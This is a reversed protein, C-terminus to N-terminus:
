PTPEQLIDPQPQEQSALDERPNQETNSVAGMAATSTMVIDRPFFLDITWDLAVRVKRSLKPMKLLYVTRWLWWAAFGSLQIGYVKAVGTRCGLAALAGKSRINCPRPRAGSVVAALNRALHAGQRVAHQATAPYAARDHTVESRFVIKGHEPDIEVRHPDLPHGFEARVAQDRIEGLEFVHGLRNGVGIEHNARHGSEHPILGDFTHELFSSRDDVDRKERLVRKSEIVECPLRPYAAEDVASDRGPQAVEDEPTHLLVQVLRRREM